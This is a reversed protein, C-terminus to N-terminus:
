AAKLLAMIIGVHVGEHFLNFSIADDITTIDSNTTAIHLGKYDKLDGNEYDKITQELTSFVLKKLDEVEDKTADREPKTGKKYLSIFNADVVMPRGALGQIIGQQTSVIHGINWIINNKFGEPIYNLTSLPITKLYHYLLKRNQMTTELVFNM